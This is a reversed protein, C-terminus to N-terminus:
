AYMYRKSQGDATIVVNVKATIPDGVFSKATCEYIGSDWPSAKTITLTGDAKIDYHSKSRGCPVKWSVEATPLGEALRAACNITVTNGVTEELKLPPPSDFKFRLVAAM